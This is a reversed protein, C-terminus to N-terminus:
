EFKVKAMMWLWRMWWPKGMLLIVGKQSVNSTNENGQKDVGAEHAEGVWVPGRPLGSPVIRVRGFWWRIRVRIRLDCRIMTWQSIGSVMLGVVLGKMAQSVEVLQFGLVQTEECEVVPQRKPEWDVEKM